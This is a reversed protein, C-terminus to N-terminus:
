NEGPARGDYEWNAVTSGSNISVLMLKSNQSPTLLLTDGAFYPSAYLKGKNEGLSYQWTVKTGDAPDVAFITGTETTFYVADETVVANSTVPGDPQSTWLIDGGTDMAYINGNIDGFFMTDGAENFVPGSWVWGLTEVEWAVSGDSANLATMKSNFDGVYLFGDRVAPTGVMASGLDAVWNQNGTSIDISYVKHNLTTIYICSCDEDSAPTSWIAGDAKFTWTENGQLDVAYLKGDDNSAFITEDIILPSAIFRSGAAYSWLMRGNAPDLSYLKHDYSGIVLQSGDATLVPASFFTIKADAKEPFRWLPAGSELDVAYVFTNMAGFATTDNAVAGGFGSPTLGAGGCGTLLISVALAALIIIPLKKALKM